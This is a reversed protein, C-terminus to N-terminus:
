KVYGSQRLEVYVEYAEVQLIQIRLLGFQFLIKGSGLIARDDCCMVYDLMFKNWVPGLTLVLELSM